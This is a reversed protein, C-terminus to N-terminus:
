NRLRERVACGVMEDLDVDIPYLLKKIRHIRRREVFLIEIMVRFLESDTPGLFIV